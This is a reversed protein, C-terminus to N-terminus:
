SFLTNDSGSALLPIAWFCWPEFPFLDPTNPTVWILSIQDWLQRKNQKNMENGKMENMGKVALLCPFLVTFDEPELPDTHLHEPFRIIKKEKWGFYYIFESKESHFSAKPLPQTQHIEWRLFCDNGTGKPITFRPTASKKWHESLFAVGPYWFHKLRSCLLKCHCSHFVKIAGLQVQLIIIGARGWDPISM